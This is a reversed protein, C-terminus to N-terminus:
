SNQEQLTWKTKIQKNIYKKAQKIRGNKKKKVTEKHPVYKNLKKKRVREKSM